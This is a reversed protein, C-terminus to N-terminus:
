TSTEYDFIFDEVIVADGDVAWFMESNAIEAAKIHAQHIGKIKDVRKAKPFKQLLRNYNEDANPENYSIFIIDYPKFKSSLVDHEKRKILFRHDFERKGIKKNISFLTIGNSYTEEGRFLHKFVHNELRDYIEHHTFYLNFISEDIIEVENWVVWFMDTTSKEIAELYEDYNSIDFRQYSEPSSAVIDIEKKNLFFRHEFEKKSIELQKPILCIGDFSQGNKFIHVYMDDWKTAKYDKLDFNEDLLLDNWIVWFMKTFSKQQIQDITLNKELRQANPYRIKVMDWHKGENGLFFIDHM